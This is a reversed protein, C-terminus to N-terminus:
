KNTARLVAHHCAKRLEDLELARREYSLLLEHSLEKQRRLHARAQTALEQAHRASAVRMERRHREELGVLEYEHALEIGM